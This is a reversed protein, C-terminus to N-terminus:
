LSYESFYGRSNALDGRVPCLSEQPCEGITSTHMQYVYGIILLVKGDPTNRSPVMKGSLVYSECTMELPLMKNSCGGESLTIKPSKRM